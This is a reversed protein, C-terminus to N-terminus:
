VVCLGGAHFSGSAFGPVIQRMAQLREAVKNVKETLKGALSQGGSLQNELARIEASNDAYIPTRTIGGGEGQARDGAGGPTETWGIVKTANKLADLKELVAKNTAEGAAMKGRLTSLRGEAKALRADRQAM